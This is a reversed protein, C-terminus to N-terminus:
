SMLELYLDAAKDRLGQPLKEETSAYEAYTQRWLLSKTEDAAQEELIPTAKAISKNDLKLVAAQIEELEIETLGSDTSEPQGAPVPPPITEGTPPVIPEVTPPVVQPGHVTLRILESFKPGWATLQDHIATLTAETVDYLTGNFYFMYNGARDPESPLNPCYIEMHPLVTSAFSITTNAM